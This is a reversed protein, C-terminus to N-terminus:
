EAESIPNVEVKKHGKSTKCTESTEGPPCHWNGNKMNVEM